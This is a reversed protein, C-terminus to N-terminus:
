VDSINLTESANIHIDKELTIRGFLDVELSIHDKIFRKLGNRIAIVNDKQILQAHEGKFFARASATEDAIVCDVMPIKLGEHTEIVKHDASVVRAYVNYGSHHTEIEKIKIFKPKHLTKNEAM